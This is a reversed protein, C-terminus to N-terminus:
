RSGKLSIPGRRQWVTETNKSSLNLLGSPGQESTKEKLKLSNMCWMLPSFFVNWPVISFSVVVKSVDRNNGLCNCSCCFKMTVFATSPFPGVTFIARKEWGHLHCGDHMSMCGASHDSPRSSHPVCSAGSLGKWEHINFRKKIQDHFSSPTIHLSISLGTHFLCLCQNAELLKIQKRIQEM